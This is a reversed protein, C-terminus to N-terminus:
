SAAGRYMMPDPGLLLQSLERALAMRVHQDGFAVAMRADDAPADDADVVRAYRAVLTAVAASAQAEVADLNVIEERLNRITFERSGLLAYFIETAEPRRAGGWAAIFHLCPAPSPTGPEAPLADLDIRRRCERM